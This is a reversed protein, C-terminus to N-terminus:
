AFIRKNQIIFFLININKFTNTIIYLNQLLNFFFVKNTTCVILIFIHVIM